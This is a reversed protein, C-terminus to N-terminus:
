QQPPRRKRRKLQATIIGILVARDASPMDLLDIVPTPKVVWKHGDPLTTCRRVLPPDIRGRQNWERRKKV